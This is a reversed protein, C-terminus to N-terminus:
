KEGVWDDPFSYQYFICRVTFCLFHILLFWCMTVFLRVCFTFTRLGLFFVCRIDYSVYIHMENMLLSLHEVKLPRLVFFGVIWLMFLTRENSLPHQNWWEEVPRWRRSTGVCVNCVYNKGCGYTDVWVTAKIWRHCIRQVHMLWQTADGILIAQIVDMKIWRCRNLDVMIAMYSPDDSMM